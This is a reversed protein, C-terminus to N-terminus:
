RILDIIFSIEKIYDTKESLDLIYLSHNELLLESVRLFELNLQKRISDILLSNSQQIEEYNESKGKHFALFCYFFM